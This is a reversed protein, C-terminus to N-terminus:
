GSAFEDMAAQDAEHIWLEAIRGNRVHYVGVAQSTLTRTGRHLERELLAVVHEQNALVDHLEVDIRDYTNNLRRFFDNLVHDRGIYDGSVPNHGGIHFVVNDDLLARARDVDRTAVSETWSRVVDANAHSVAARPYGRVAARDV